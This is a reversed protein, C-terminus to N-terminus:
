HDFNRWHCLRYCGLLYSYRKCRAIYSLKRFYAAGCILAKSLTRVRNYIQTFWQVQTRAYSLRSSCLYPYLVWQPRLFSRLFCCLAWLGIRAPFLTRELCSMLCPSVNLNCGVTLWNDNTVGYGSASCTWKTRWLIVIIYFSGRFVTPLLFLKHCSEATFGHSFFQWSGLAGSIVNM